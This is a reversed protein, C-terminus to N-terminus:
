VGKAKTTAVSAPTHPTWSAFAPSTGSTGGGTTVGTHAHTTLLTKLADLDSKVSQLESLVLSAFALYDGEGSGGGVVVNGDAQLFLKWTGLYHLGGEGDSLGEGEPPKDGGLGLLVGNEPAAMPCAMIGQADAPAQFHVGQPEFVEVDPTARGSLWEVLPKFGARSVRVRHLLNNIETIM